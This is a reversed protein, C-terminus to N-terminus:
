LILAQENLILLTRCCSFFLDTYFSDNNNHEERGYIQWLLYVAGTIALPRRLAASIDDLAHDLGIGVHQPPVRPM